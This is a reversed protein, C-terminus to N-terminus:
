REILALIVEVMVPSDGIVVVMAGLQDNALGKVVGLELPAVAPVHVRGDPVLLELARTLCLGNVPRPYVTM